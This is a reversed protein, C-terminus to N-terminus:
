LTRRVLLVASRPGLLGNNRLQNGYDFLIMQVNSPFATMHHGMPNLVFQNTRNKTLTTPGLSMQQMTITPKM